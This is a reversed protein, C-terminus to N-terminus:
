TGTVYYVSKSGSANLKIVLHKAQQFRCMTVADVEDDWASTLGTRSTYVPMAIRRDGDVTLLIDTEIIAPGDVM